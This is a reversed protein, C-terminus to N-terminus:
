GSGGPEPCRMPRYGTRRVVPGEASDEVVVDLYACDGADVRLGDRHYKRVPLSYRCGPQALSACDLAAPWRRGLVVYQYRAAETLVGEVQQLDGGLALAM